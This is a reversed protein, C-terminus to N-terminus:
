EGEEGGSTWSDDHRVRRRRGDADVWRRRRAPRTVFCAAVACSVAILVWELDGTQVTYWAGAAVAAVIVAPVPVVELPVGGAERGGAERAQM